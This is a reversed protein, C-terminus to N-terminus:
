VADLVFIRSWFDGYTAAEHREIDFLLGVAELDDGRRTLVNARAIADDHAPWVSVRYDLGPELGRLRVREPGPAPRNLVRYFGVVARRRDESVCMWATENGDGDFPGRLRIFRGRQFLGRHERYFAVQDRIEAREAEGLATTDLEYGFVGFFAV